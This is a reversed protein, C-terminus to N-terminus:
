TQISHYEPLYKGRETDGLHGDSYKGVDESLQITKGPHIFRFHTKEVTLIAQCLALEPFTNSLFDLL